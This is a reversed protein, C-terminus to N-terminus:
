AAKRPARKPEIDDPSDMPIKAKIALKRCECLEDHAPAQRTVAWERVRKWVSLRAIIWNRRWQARVTWLKKRLAVLRRTAWKSAIGRMLKGILRRGVAIVLDKLAAWLTAGITM